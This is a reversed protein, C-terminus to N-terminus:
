HACNQVAFACQEDGTLLGGTPGSYNVRSVRGDDFVVNIICYRHRKTGFGFASTRASGLANSGWMATNGLFAVRGNSTSMGSTFANATSFADVEGNGSSYRWVETDGEAMKTNPVGMCALVDAKPMGVMASRAKAATESREIKSCGSMPAVALGTALAIPLWPACLACAAGAARTLTGLM